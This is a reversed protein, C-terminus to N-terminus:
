WRRLFQLIDGANADAVNVFDWLCGATESPDCEVVNQGTWSFYDEGEVIDPGHRIGQDDPLTERLGYSRFGVPILLQHRATSPFADMDFGLGELLDQLRHRQPPPALTLM